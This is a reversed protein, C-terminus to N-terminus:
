NITDSNFIEAPTISKLSPIKSFDADYTVISVGKPIQTAIVCDGYKINYKNYFKVAKTVDTQEIVIINRIKLIQDLIQLVRKKPFKYQRTLVFVIEFIVFNSIYSKAEGNQIIKFLNECEEYKEPIDKTLFRIFISTDIFIKDM